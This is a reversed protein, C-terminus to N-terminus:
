KAAGRRTGARSRSASSKPKRTRSGASSKPKRSRAPTRKRRQSAPVEEQAVAGSLTKIQRELFRAMREEERLIGRAVKATEADNVKEAFALLSTYTAIEQAEEAYEQRANKLMQEAEGTGAIPSLGRAADLQGKAAAKGKGAVTTATKLLGGTDGGLAKIRREVQKAHSKTEKLHERLRKKYPAKTTMGIHLQLATELEKEKTHAESLFQILKADRENPDPM